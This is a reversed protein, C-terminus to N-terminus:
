SMVLVAPTHTHTVALSGNLMWREVSTDCVVLQHM